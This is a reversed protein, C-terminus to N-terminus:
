QKYWAYDGTKIQYVSDPKILYLKYYVRKGIIWYGKKGTYVTDKTPQPKPQPDPNPIPTVGDVVVFVPSSSYNVTGTYDSTTMVGSGDSTFQKLKGKVNLNYTGTRETIV